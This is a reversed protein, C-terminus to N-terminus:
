AAYDVPSSHADDHHLAWYAERLDLTVPGPAGQGVPAGDLTRVPMVGGATSTLFIESARYLASVPLFGVSPDLGREAALELVVKRTIGELVGRGPTCLRGDVVAFVNVGPGETVNGDGDTLVAIFAGRDYAELIGRTLDGWHFNKVTPDVSGVPIRVTDRAVVVDTGELQKEPRVIWVYPLAVAYFRPDFRRPDREGRPPVGRTVITQVYSERLGSRRVCEHLVETMGDRDVPSILRIRELGAFLRDLHDDLRFFRGDWVGVVDYTLDSRVFGADTIPIAAEGVPVFRGGVHACGDAYPNDPDPAVSPLTLTEPSHM